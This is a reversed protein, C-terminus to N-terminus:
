KFFQKLDECKCNFIEALAYLEQATWRSGERKKLHINIYMLRGISSWTHKTKNKENFHKIADDLNLQTSLIKM